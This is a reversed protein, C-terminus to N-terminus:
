VSAMKEVKTQNRNFGHLDCFDELDFTANLNTHQRYITEVGHKFDDVTVGKQKGAKLDRKMASSTAHDVLGAIMSGSVANGLRFIESQQGHTVKFMVRQQAFLEASAIAALEEADSGKAIPINRMHIKFYDMSNKLTPRHVRIHRDCRGERLIAPDVLKQQNTALLVILNNDTLGDMESLFMPVITDEVDSSKGTGRMKLISEAEDIFILAPYGHKKYHERGRSFLNRVELESQGVWKSLLEPGKVYIFGSQFNESGHTKALSSAAAKAVLTKGCGPAGYLLIGKPPKKNYFKYIEPHKYPLELAEQMYDKVDSLGAIDDWEITQEVSNFRGSDAKKLIRVCMTNSNDLMVRDDNEIKMEKPHIVVRQQGHAEVEVHTEDVRDKVFAIEGAATEGVVDHIQFTQMDVKVNDTALIKVGPLGHVEFLKGDVSIVCNTGDDKGILKVQPFCNIGINLRDKSGNAYECIVWGDDTVGDSSLKGYFKKKKKLEKDIILLRDGKEFAKLNFENKSSVVTAYVLPQALLRTLEFDLFTLQGKLEEYEDYSLRISNDSETKNVPAVCDIINKDAM